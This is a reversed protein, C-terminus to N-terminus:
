SPSASYAPGGILLIRTLNIDPILRRTVETKTKELEETYNTRISSTINTLAEPPSPVSPIIKRAVDVEITNKFTEGEPSVLLVTINHRGEPSASTDWLCPLSPCAYNGDIQVIISKYPLTLTANITVVGSVTANVLPSTINIYVPGAEKTVMVIVKKGSAAAINYGMSSSSILASGRGLPYKDVLNGNTNLVYVVGAEDSIVIREGGYAYDLRKVEKEPVYFWREGSQDLARVYRSGAVVKDGVIRVAKVFRQINHERIVRGEHDFLYVSGSSTGAAIKGGDPTIDVSLIPGDGKFKWMESGKRNLLYVYENSSGLVIYDGQPTMALDLVSEGVTFRWSLNGSKNFLYLYYSDGAAIYRADTSVAASIVPTETGAEWLMDGSVNFIQVHDEVGVALYGASPDLAVERVTDNFDHTWSVAYGHVAAPLFILLFLLNKLHM